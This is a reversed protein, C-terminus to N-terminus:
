FEAFINFVGFFMLCLGLLSSFYGLFDFIGATPAVCPERDGRILPASTQFIAFIRCARLRKEPFVVKRAPSNGPTRSEPLAVKRSRPNGSVYSLTASRLELYGFTASRLQVYYRSRWILFWWIEKFPSSPKTQCSMIDRASFRSLAM